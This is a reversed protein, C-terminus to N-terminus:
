IARRTGALYIPVALLPAAAALLLTQFFPLSEALAGGAIPGVMLGLAYAFNFIGYVAGYAGGGRRDVVEAVEPMVPTIAFGYAISVVTLMVTAPLIAAPLALLPLTLAMALLGLVIVPRRGWRDSLWGVFPNAIGYALTAAGFVLGIGGPSLGFREELYLPYVPELLGWVGAGVAAALCPALVMPDRLLDAFIAPGAGETSGPKLLALVMVLGALALLAAALFPVRAGGAEYLLGGVPPGLLFGVTGGSLSIAMARGRAESPFADAVIALGATWTCAASVGQIFRAAILWGFGPAFAFMVTSVALAALGWAMASRRNIRDLVVGMVPTAILLGIAYSGFLVGIAFDSAGYQKAFEPLVPVLMGYLLIDTFSALTSVALVAAASGRRFGVRQAAESM